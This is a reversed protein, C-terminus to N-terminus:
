YDRGIFHLPSHLALLFALQHSALLLFDGNSPRLFLHYRTARPAQAFPALSFAASSPPFSPSATNMLRPCAFNENTCLFDPILKIRMPLLLTERHTISFSTLGWRQRRRSNWPLWCVLNGKQQETKEWQKSSARQRKKRKSVALM